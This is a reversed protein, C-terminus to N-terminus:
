QVAQWFNHDGQKELAPVKVVVSIESVVSQKNVNGRAWGLDSVAITRGVKM